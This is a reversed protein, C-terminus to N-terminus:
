REVEFLQKATQLIQGIATQPNQFKRPTRVEEDTHAIPFHDTRVFVQPRSQDDFSSRHVRAAKRLQCALQIGANAVTVAEIEHDLLEPHHVFLEALMEDGNQTNFRTFDVDYGAEQLRPVAFEALYQSETPNDDSHAAKYSIINENTLETPMGMKRSGGLVILKQGPKATEILQATTRDSWNAVNGRAVRVTPIDLTDATIEPSWLSRSLAKQVGAREVWSAAIELGSLDTGLVAQVAPLNDQLAKKERMATFLGQLAVGNPEAGPEVGFVQMMEPVVGSGLEYVSDTALQYNSFDREAM